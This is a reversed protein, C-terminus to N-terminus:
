TNRKMVIQLLFDGVVVRHGTAKEIMWPNVNSVLQQPPIENQASDFDGLNLTVRMMLRHLCSKSVTKQTLGADM